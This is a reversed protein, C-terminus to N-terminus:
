QGHALIRAAAQLMAAQEERSMDPEEDDAESDGDPEIPVQPVADKRRQEQEARAEPSVLPLDAQQRLHNELEEDPFLTMGAGSLKQIFDGLGTLDIKGINGFKLLPPNDTSLGNLRLLRPIAQRNIVDAISDLWASIAETFLTTKDSSLAYSGTAEHGLLIFDALVTMAIRQDYRAVVKDTDFQRTGSSALLQVDYYYNGSEDRSSPIVICAEEDNRINQGIEKLRALIAKQDSSAVPSFLDGPGRLVPLGALDREIGIGEINEINKKFYWPRYANRIVSYGEPNGKRATTRFLLSKDLPIYTPKYLPPASQHMGLVRGQDTFEWRWLTDQSRIAWKCWGMKGDSYRSAKEEDKNFGRRLKYSHELWSWGFPLMTLVESMTDEWTVCMDDFCSEVFEIVETDANEEDETVIQWDVRRILMEIAFLVAGVVPDTRMENLVKYKRDGQLERLYEDRIYGGTWDLGTVGLEIHTPIAM